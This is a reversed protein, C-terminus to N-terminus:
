SSFSSPGSSSSSSEGDVESMSRDAAALALTASRHFFNSVSSKVAFCSSAAIVLAFVALLSRLLHKRPEWVIRHRGVTVKFLQGAFPALLVLLVIILLLRFIGLGGRIGGIGGGINETLYKILNLSKGTSSFM